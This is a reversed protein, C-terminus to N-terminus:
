YGSIKNITRGYFTPYDTLKVLIYFQIAEANGCGDNFVKVMNFSFDKASNESQNIVGGSKTKSYQLERMYHFYVFQVLMKKIGESHVDVSNIKELIENFITQYIVTQPTQPTAGTLDAIFLKYLEIGLLDVLYEKEYKDIYQQLETFSDQPISYEGKFDTDKLISM